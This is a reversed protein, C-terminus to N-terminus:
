VGPAQAGDGPTVPRAGGRLALLAGVVAIPIGVVGLLPLHIGLLTASLILTFVPIGTMLMPPIVLGVQAIAEFYIADALFFNTVGCVVLLLLAVPPVRVLGDWGGPFLPAALALVIAAAVMSQAVVSSAPAKENARATLLFFFAAFIPVCPVVLWGIPPVSELRQGGAIALSGGALSLILGAAFLPTGIHERHAAFVTAVVIPTVVVDGILSLLAADVPGTLYTAALVGVQFGVLVGLRGYSAPDRWLGAFARAEGRALAWIVYGIGGFVFPYVLIASPSAAPTVRLVFIYYTAWLFAAFISLAVAVARGGRAAAM